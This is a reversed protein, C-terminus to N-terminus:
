RAARINELHTWTGSISGPFVYDSVIDGNVVVEATLWFLPIDMHLPFAVNGLERLLRDQEELDLTQRITTFLSDVEPIEMSGGRPPHSTRHVRYSLTIHSSTQYIMWDNKFEFSRHKATREARDMSVLDPQVGIDRWYGGIAEVVDESGSYSSLNIVHLNTNLPNSPSYGAEALLAKAADPDYGYEAPFRTEWSPDWGLRTPHHPNLYMIQAKGGFFAQNIADRDIAKNLAKRVRVDLLPTDPYKYETTTALKGRTELTAPELFCCRPRLATRLGPVNGQVVKMGAGIAQPLLDEPVNTIHIENTLLAGLRTSAESLFRLEIEPFDATIRWHDYPVQKFRVYRTQERNDFLYPGTGVIPPTVLTPVGDQDFHAKSQILLSQGLQAIAPMLDADAVTNRFVVEYDNVIEVSEVDRRFLSSNGAKSDEATIDQWTHQVDKATFEDWDGHFRVGKRLKFRLSKGDPEVSWDTALQPIYAGTVPDMGVLYEYMVALQINNPPGEKGPTNHEVSVPVMGFVVRDVKPEATPAPESAQTPEPTAATPAEAPQADDSGCAAVLALGLALLPLVLFRRATFGNIMEVKGGKKLSSGKEPYTPPQPLSAYLGRLTLASSEPRVDGHVATVGLGSGVAMGVGRGVDVCADCGVGVAIGAGAGVAAGAGATAGVGVAVRAGSGVTIGAGVDVGSGVAVGVCAGAGVTVAAAGASTSSSPPSIAM